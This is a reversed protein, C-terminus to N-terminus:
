ELVSTLNRQIRIRAGRGWGSRGGGGVGRRGVDGGERIAGVEQVIAFLSHTKLAM